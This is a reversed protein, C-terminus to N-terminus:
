GLKNAARLPESIPGLDYFVIKERRVSIALIMSGELPFICTKYTKYDELPLISTPNINLIETDLYYFESNADSRRSKGVVMYHNGYCLLDNIVTLITNRKTIQGSEVEYVTTRGSVLFTNASTSYIFHPDEDLSVKTGVDNSLIVISHNDGVVVQDDSVYAFCDIKSRSQYILDKSVWVNDEWGYRYLNNDVKSVAFMTGDRIQPLPEVAVRVGQLTHTQEEPDFVVITGVQPNIMNILPKENVYFPIMTTNRHLDGRIYRYKETMTKYDFATLGRTNLTLIVFATPTSYYTFTLHKVELHRTTEEGTETLSGAKLNMYKRKWYLYLEKM